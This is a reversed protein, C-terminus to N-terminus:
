IDIGLAANIVLQVDVANVATDGNVDAILGGIDIGLAANIVLQVDVANIADDGNIDATRSAVLEYLGSVSVTQGNEITVTKSDPAFWAEIGQRFSVIHQGISLDSVTDGSAHWTGGDVQWQAGATRAAEPNITVTLSGVGAASTFQQVTSTAQNGSHDSSVAQYYYSTGPDLNTLSVSHDTTYGTVTQVYRLDNEATGYKIQSTSFEDTIWVMKASTADSESVEPDEDFEPATSDAQALTTFNVVSSTTPGNGSPDTSAVKLSMNTSATLNTLLILHESKHTAEGASYDLSAGAQGYSVASDSIEDTVWRVLATTDTISVLLPGESIVPPTEDPFEDTVFAVDAKQAWFLGTDGDKVAAGSTTTNGAIDTSSVIIEYQAFPALNVLMIQHETVKDANSRLLLPTGAVGYRVVSDSPEDTIWFITAAIDTVYIIEPGILFVPPTTDPADNTTFTDVVSQTPGHGFGDTSEVRYFYETDPDLGPLSIYHLQSLADTGDSSALNDPSLGYSVTADALEDTIWRISASTVGVNTPFPGEIIVPPSTDPNPLTVFTQTSSLVTGANGTSSATYNYATAPALATLHVFHEMSLDDNLSEFGTTGDDYSIDSTAPEDTWWVITVEVDSIAIAIPGAIIVPPTDDPVALTRFDIIHSEVANGQTDESVVRAYYQTNVELADLGMAHLTVLADDQQQSTKTDLEDLTTGYIVTSNTPVNTEWEILASDTEVFTVIPGQLIVPVFRTGLSVSIDVEEGFNVEAGPAPEQAFVHGAPITDDYAYDTSGMQLGMAFITVIAEYHPLGSLDPVAILGLADIYWTKTRTNSAVETTVTLSVTFRGDETYTHSPHRDDSTSGDGFDWDWSEIPSTGQASLDSFHVEFPITGERNDATFNALPPVPNSAVIIHSSKTETDDGVPGAVSLSVTFIGDETYVHSPHQDTSTAGDGFDWFWNDIGANGPLSTDTFHVELPAQGSTPAARFDAVPAGAEAEVVILGVETVTDSGLPTIVTLSVTYRGPLHYIHSPNPDHSGSFDGFDWTWAIIPESGPFSTDTFFVELPFQGSDPEAMFNAVPLGSGGGDLVIDLTTNGSVTVGDVFTEPFGIEPPPFANVFYTGQLLMMDYHGTADSESFSGAGGTAEHAEVFVGPVAVGDAGTVTGSLSVPVPLVIDQQTEGAVVVHSVISEIYFFRPFPISVPMVADDSVDLRYLGDQASIQYLGNENSISTGFLKFGDDGHAMVRVGSVPTQGDSAYVTGQLTIPGSSGGGDLIIDFSTDVPVAVDEVFTMPLGSEPPPMANLFYVGPFLVLEYFGNPDSEGFSGSMGMAEHAEIHVGGVAAGEPTKTFGSLTVTPPLIIDQVSQGSVVVQHVLEEIHFYEPLPINTPVGMGDGVGLSYTGDPLSLEYVGDPNTVSMGFFKTGFIEEAAVTVGSVPTVGDWAYVIGTLTIEGGAPGGELIIDLIGDVEVVVNDLFAMPLGAEPPPFATIQYVGPLLYLEYAGDPASEAFSGSTGEMQHAEIHVNGVAIGDPSLTLGSIRAPAPLIIDQTTNGSVVVEPVIGEIYFFEPFPINMPHEPDDVVDLRYSDDPVFIEYVGNEDSVGTGFQKFPQEGSPQAMVRVGSVPTQNDSAYVVGSLNFEGGPGEDNLVIDLVIDATAVVNDVFAPGYGTEPPPMADLHYVGQPVFMEYYGNVDTIADTMFKAPPAGGDDLHLMVGPVPTVGDPAYVIGSIKVSEVFETLVLDLITDTEVIVNDAFAPGFGTTPPPMAEVYYVDAFVFLEYHGNADTMTEMFFKTTPGGGDVFVEVNPVPTVGDPAFVTGSLKLDGLESLVLNLVTDAEILVDDTYVPGFGSEPTPLADVYYIGPFVFIEYYGNADTVTEMFFKATPFGGEEGVQVVIDPVPTVGDPAFVTGSLKIDGTTGDDTLVLDLVVDAEVIVNDVVAPGFGSEPPGMADVHYVGAPAFLEYYGTPDTVTDAFFKAPPGENDLHVNAGPVPTVGDPAYVIGSVKFDGPGGDTLVLDLVVDTEVIVNDVVAPGFGLEPPGMADVHYVGAPAFLEYYGAGDTVTDAFFKATPGENDLHVNAGPVPTVGDPAYVIGSVKFDGPGGDTLVLDLVVDAEVIVNDMVAPGFGSEPPGMADVHYVGAPAFLEYYGTPDTVTDAFFKAPPGENDLHVNAGPVPTVGDPAYVIGSVKFDGASENLVLDLVTDIEIAVNEVVVMDFILEPPPMAGVTYLGPPVFVEYYGTPDTLTEVFFKTTTSGDDVHVTAGEVPTVGDPAYVIGSLKLDGPVETTLILDLVIDTEVIVNDAFAPGFGSEPAPVADVSYVGAPAFLEYYGNADTVTDAFFKVPPGEDDLHVNVGAVPTAGDPAYVTGSVKFDAPQSAALTVNQIVDAEVLIAQIIVPDLGTTPPPTASLDYTGAPLFMSFYGTVDTQSTSKAPPAGSIAAEMLVGSVPTQGDPAFVTGALMFDGGPGADTLIIDVIKNADVVVNDVFAPGYNSEIPPTADIYYTNPPLLIEYHGTGDTETAYQKTPLPEIQVLTGPVPTVGDPAYVTGSLTFDVVKSEAEALGCSFLAVFIAASLVISFGRFRNSNFSSM